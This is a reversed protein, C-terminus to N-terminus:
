RRADWVAVGGLFGALTDAARRLQEANGHDMVNWRTADKLVLNLEYSYFVHHEDDTHIDVFERIIQLAHIQDLSVHEDPGTGGRWRRGKWAAGLQRDFTRKVCIRSRWWFGLASIGCGCFLVGLLRGPHATAEALLPIAVSLTTVPGMLIIFGTFLSASASAAFVLRESSPKRLVHTALKTGGPAM